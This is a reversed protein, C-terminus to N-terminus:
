YVRTIAYDLLRTLAKITEENHHFSEIAKLACQRHEEMKKYTARIGDYRIVFSKIENEAEFTMDNEALHRIYLREDESARKMAIILPLTVKGDRIDQLTPKGIEENDSYDLVDDKLQFCIGLHYGYQRLASAQRTTGASSAVGAEACAAFLTATKQSIIQFYDDETIWMGKEQHLQLIEGNSLQMGLDSIINLIQLNRLNSILSIVKSLLYDGTLVAVKNGFVHQVSPLQRRMPSNDVVDDHVLSAAHLMELAVATQITKETVGHAMQASLLVLIPRLQKGKGKVVHELAMRLLAHESSFAALYTEEFERFSSSIPRKIQDLANM